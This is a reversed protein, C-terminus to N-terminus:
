SQAGSPRGAVQVEDGDKLYAAGKVVLIFSDGLEAAVAAKNNFFHVLIVAKRMAKGSELVFIDAKLGDADVLAEFPVLYALQKNKPQIEARGIFGALIPVDVEDLLIEVEYAGSAPNISAGVESVRGGFVREGYASLFVQASAGRETELIHRESVGARLVWQKKGSALFLVPMGPGVVEGPEALRKLIVGEADAVLRTTQSNYQLAQYQASAVALATQVDSLQQETAAKDAFLGEVRRLDRRAKELAAKAVNLQAKIDSPNLQALLQGKKVQDGENVPIREVIGGLKFGLRIGSHAAMRGAVLLPIGIEQRKVTQVGVSRGPTLSQRKEAKSCSWILWMSTVLGM